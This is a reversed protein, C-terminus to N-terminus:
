TGLSHCYRLIPLLSNSQAWFVMRIFMALAAYAEWGHYLLVSTSIIHINLLRHDFFLTIVKLYIM